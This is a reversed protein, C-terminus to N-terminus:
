DFGTFIFFMVHCMKYTELPFFLSIFLSYGISCFSTRVWCSVTDLRALSPLYKKKQDESGCMATLFIKVFLRTLHVPIIVIIFIMHVACGYTILPHSHNICQSLCFLSCTPQNLKCITLMGLCTHVLMFTSCSADVRALETIAVASGLISLGPCGYGQLGIVRQIVTFRFVM